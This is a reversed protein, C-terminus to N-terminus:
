WWYPTPESGAKYIVILTCEVRLRLHYLKGTAQWPRHNEGAEEEVLVPRWSIASINNFTANFCWFDFYFRNSSKVLNNHQHYRWPWIDVNPKFHNYSNVGLRGTAHMHQLFTNVCLHFTWFPFNSIMEKTM